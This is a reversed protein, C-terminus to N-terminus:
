EQGLQIQLFQRRTAAMDDTLSQESRQMIGQHDSQAKTRMKDLVQRQQSAGVLNLRLAEATSSLDNVYVQQDAICTKITSLYEYYLRTEDPDVEHKVRRETLEEIIATKVEELEDLMTTARQLQLLAEGHSLHAITEKRQRHELVSQLRFQFRKTM